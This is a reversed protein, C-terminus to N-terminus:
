PNNNLDTDMFVHRPRIRRTDLQKGVHLTCDSLLYLCTLSFYLYDGWVIRNWYIELGRNESGEWLAFHSGTDPTDFRKGRRGESRTERAWVTPCTLKRM